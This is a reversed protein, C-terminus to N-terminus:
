LGGVLDFNIWRVGHTRLLDVAAAVQDLSQPRNQEVLISEDTSQIGLTMRTTRHRRLVDAIEPTISRPTGEVNVHVDRTLQFASAIHGLLADLQGPEIFTPTGGGLYVTSVPQGQLAPAILDIERHLADLYRQVRAGDRTIVTDCYCFSCKRECFPVHAYVGVPASSREAVVARWAQLVRDFPLPRYIETPPYAHQRRAAKGYWAEFSQM